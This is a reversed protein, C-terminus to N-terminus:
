FHRRIYFSRLIGRIFTLNQFFFIETHDGLYLGLLNFSKIDSFYVIM